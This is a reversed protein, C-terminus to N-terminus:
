VNGVSVTEGIVFTGNALVIDTFSNQDFTDFMRLVINYNSENRIQYTTDFIPAEPGCQGSLLLIPFVLIYKYFKM